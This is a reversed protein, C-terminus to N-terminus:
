NNACIGQIGWAYWDDANGATLNICDGTLISAKTLGVDADDTGSFNVVSAALTCSGEIGDASNPSIDILAGADAGTYHIYYTCGGPVATLAPLTIAHTDFAATVFMHKGCDSADLTIDTTIAVTASAAGATFLVYEADDGSSYTIGNLLGTSGVLLATTDNDDVVISAASGSFTVAGAGGSATIDGTFGVAPTFAVTASTSSAFTALNSSFTLSLDESLDGFIFANNTGTGLTQGNAFTLTTGVAALDLGVVGTTSILAATNATSEVDIGLDENNTGGAGQIYLTGDTDNDIKEGNALTLDATLSVPDSAVAV